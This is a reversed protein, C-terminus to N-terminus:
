NPKISLEKEYKLVLFLPLKIFIEAPEIILINKLLGSIQYFYIFGDIKRGIEIKIRIISM